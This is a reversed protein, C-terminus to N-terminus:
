SEQKKSWEIWESRKAPEVVNRFMLRAKGAWWVVISERQGHAAMRAIEDREKSTARLVEFITGTPSEPTGEAWYIGAVVRAWGRVQRGAATAPSLVPEPEHTPADGREEPEITQVVEQPEEVVKRLVEPNRVSTYNLLVLTARRAIRASLAADIGLALSEVHALVRELSVAPQPMRSVQCEYDHDWALLLLSALASPLLGAILGDTALSEISAALADRESKGDVYTTGANNDERWVQEDGIHGPLLGRSMLHRVRGACELRTDSIRKANKASIDLARTRAFGEQEQM